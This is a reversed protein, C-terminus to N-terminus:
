PTGGNTPANAALGKIYALLDMLQNEDLQGKFSPMIPPYGAVIKATPDLISERIYNEDATVTGGGELPVPKGFVGVLSPGRGTQDARHCGACGYRTFLAAGVAAPADAGSGGELWQQYEALPMATVTALMTSHGTGCYETCFLRYTGPQTVQFWTTTYRGPNVDHKIRFAPISFSHIVDQSTMTLRVPQGVPVHLTNIERRGSAHQIEWMWQKGVVYIDIANAPPVSADMYLRAAWGFTFLALVLPIVTWAVELRLSGEAQEAVQNRATRRYKWSFYIILGFVLAAFFASLALLFLALTDVQGAYPSAELWQFFDPM